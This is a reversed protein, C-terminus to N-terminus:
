IYIDYWVITPMATDEHSFHAYRSTAREELENSKLMNQSLSRRASDPTASCCGIHVKILLDGSHKRYLGCAIECDRADYGYKVEKM